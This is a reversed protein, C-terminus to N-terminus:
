TTSVINYTKDLVVDIYRKKGSTCRGREIRGKRGVLKKQEQNCSVRIFSSALVVLVTTTAHDQSHNTLHSPADVLGNIKEDDSIRQESRM